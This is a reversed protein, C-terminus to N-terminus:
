HAAVGLRQLSEQLAEGDRGATHAAIADDLERRRARRAEAGLSALDPRGIVEALAAWSADDTCAVAIWRDDGATPYVGHPAPYLDLHTGQGPRRRHEHAALLAVLAYRPSTGDTYAGFPGAPPLDPWGTTTTFGFLATILNGYGPLELTGTQGPLCTSLLVIG